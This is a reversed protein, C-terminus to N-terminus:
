LIHELETMQTDHKFPHFVFSNEFGQGRPNGHHLTPSALNHITKHWCAAELCSQGQFHQLLCIEPKQFIAHMTDFLHQLAANHKYLTPELQM